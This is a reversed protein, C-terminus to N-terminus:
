ERRNAGSGDLLEAMSDLNLTLITWTRRPTKMEMLGIMWWPVITTVNSIDWASQMGRLAVGAHKRGSRCCSFSLVSAFRAPQRVGCSWGVLPGLCSENPYNAEYGM